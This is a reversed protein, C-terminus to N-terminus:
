VIVDISFPRFPTEPKQGLQPRLSEVEDPRALKLGAFNVRYGLAQLKSILTERNMNLYALTDNNEVVGQLDLEGTRKWDVYFLVMGLNKTDLSVIFRISDQMHLSKKADRHIKLQCLHLEDKIQVPIAFYYGNIVNEGPIRATINLLRQGTIEKEMGELRSILESTLEKLAPSNVDPKIDKLVEGLVQLNKVMDPESKIIAALKSSNSGSSDAAKLVLAEVLRQVLNLVERFNRDAGMTSGDAPLTSPATTKSEPSIVAAENSQGQIQQNITNIVPKSDANVMTPAANAAATSASMGPRGIQPEAIQNQAASGPNAPTEAAPFGTSEPQPLNNTNLGAAKGLTSIFTGAMASRGPNSASVSTGAQPTADDANLLNLIQIIDNCLRAANASGSSVFNALASLAAPSLAINRSLAFAAIELNRPNYGGLMNVERSLTNLNSTTVPLNYDLLKRAMQVNEQSSAMGQDRLSASLNANEIEGMMQPTVVKLYTRGDRYEDVMLYLQQGSKVMIESAAEILRGKIFLMVLGDDKVEQVMGKLIEGKNFNIGEGQPTAINLMTKNFSVQNYDM